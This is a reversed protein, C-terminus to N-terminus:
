VPNEERQVLASQQQLVIGAEARDTGAGGMRLMAQRLVPFRGVLQGPVLFSMAQSFGWSAGGPQGLACPRHGAASLTVPHIPRCKGIM